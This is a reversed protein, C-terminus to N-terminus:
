LAQYLLAVDGLGQGRLLESLDKGGSARDVGSFVIAVPLAHNAIGGAIVMRRLFNGLMPSLRGSFDHRLLLLKEDGTHLHAVDKDAKLRGASPVAVLLLGIVVLGQRRMMLVDGEILPKPLFESRVRDDMHSRVARQFKQFSLFASQRLVAIRVIQNVVQWM